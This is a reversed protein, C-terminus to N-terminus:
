TSSRKFYLYINWYVSIIMGLAFIIIDENLLIILWILNYIISSILGRGEGITYVRWRKYLIRGNGIFIMVAIIAITILTIVIAANKEGIMM